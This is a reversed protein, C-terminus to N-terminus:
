QWNLEDTKLVYVTGNGNGTIIHRGDQSFLARRITGRTPGIRVSRDPERSDLDLPKLRLTGDKQAMLLSKQDPSIALCDVWKSDPHSYFDQTTETQLDVDLVRGDFTAVYVRHGNPHWVAARFRPSNLGDIKIRKIEAGSEPDWLTLTRHECSLLRMGDPSWELRTPTGTAKGVNFARIVECKEADILLIGMPGNTAKARYACVLNKSGPRYALGAVGGPLSVRGREVGTETNWIRLEPVFLNGGAVEKSDSSFALEELMGVHPGLSCRWQNRSVDFLRSCGYDAIAMFREDPSLVMEQLSQNPSEGTFRRHFTPLEWLAVQHDESVTAALNLSQSITVDRVTGFHGYLLQPAATKGVETVQVGWGNTMLLKNSDGVFSVANPPEKLSLRQPEEPRDLDWIAVEREKPMACALRKSDASFDLAAITGSLGKLRTVVELTELSYIEISGNSLAIALRTGVFNSNIRDVNDSVKLTKIQEGTTPDILTLTSSKSCATWVATGGDAPIVDVVCGDGVQRSWLRRSTEVDFAVVNGDAFGVLIVAGESVIAQSQPGSQSGLPILRVLDATDANWIRLTEDSGLSAILRHREDIAVRIVRGWHSLRSDGVVAMLGPFTGGADDAAAKLEYSSSKGASLDDFPTKIVRVESAVANSDRNTGTQNSATNSGTHPNPPHIPNPQAIERNSALLDNQAETSSPPAKRFSLWIGYGASIGLLTLAVGAFMWRLSQNQRANARVAAQLSPDRVVASDSPILVAMPISSKSDELTPRDTDAQSPSTITTADAAVRLTGSRDPAAEARPRMIRSSDEEGGPLVQLFEDIAVILEDASQVRDAAVPQLLRVILQDLEEPIDSRLDKPHPPQQSQSEMLRRVVTGENFPARGCLLFFATAGLSYLDARADVDRSNYAQEPALYGATGLFTSDHLSSLRSDDSDDFFRALGLDLIKVLGTDDLMLNTPKIDRHILGKLHAHALGLAVQRMLHAVRKPTFTGDQEVVDQLNRGTALEMSLFYLDTNGERVRSLEYARVINPHDTTAVARGERLFRELLEPDKLRTPHLLKVACRRKMLTQEALYVTGMAGQGLMDKLVYNGLSFGKHKGDLLKDAQWRTLMGATVLYEAVSEPTPYSAEDIDVIRLVASVDDAPLIGSLELGRLFHDVSLTSPM